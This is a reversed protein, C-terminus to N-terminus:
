VSLAELQGGFQMNFHGNETDANSRKKWAIACKVLFMLRCDRSRAGINTSAYKIGWESDNCIAKMTNITSVEMDHRQSHAAL